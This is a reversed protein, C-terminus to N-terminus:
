VHTSLYTAFGLGYLTLTEGSGTRSGSPLCRAGQRMSVLWTLRFRHGKLNHRRMRVPPLLPHAPERIQSVSQSFESIWGGPQGSQGVGTLVVCRVTSPLLSFHKPFWLAPLVCKLAHNELSNSSRLRVVPELM